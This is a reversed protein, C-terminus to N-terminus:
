VISWVERFSGNRRRAYLTVNGHDTVEFYCPADPAPDGAAVFPVGDDRADQQWNESLWFGFDAGDDPHAGFYGYDPAYENLADCLDNVLEVDCGHDTDYKGANFARVNNAMDRPLAGRLRRLEDALAPVLDESRLTGHSISGFSAVQKRKM